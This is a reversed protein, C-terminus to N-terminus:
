VCVCAGAVSDEKKFGSNWVASSSTTSMFRWVCGRWLMALNSVIVAKDPARM